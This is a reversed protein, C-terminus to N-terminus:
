LIQELHSIWKYFTFVLPIEVTECDRLLSFIRCCYISGDLCIVFLRFEDMIEITPSFLYILGNFYPRLPLDQMACSGFCLLCCHGRQKKGFVTLESTVIYAKFFISCLDFFVNEVVYVLKWLRPSLKLSKSDCAPKINQSCVWIKGNWYCSWRFPFDITTM